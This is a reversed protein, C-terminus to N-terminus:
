EWSNWDWTYDLDPESYVGDVAQGEIMAATEEVVYSAVLSPELMVVAMAIIEPPNYKKKRSMM